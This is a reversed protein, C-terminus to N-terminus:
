IRSFDGKECNWTMQEIMFHFVAFFAVLFLPLRFSRVMTFLALNAYHFHIMMTRPHIITHSYAILLVKDQEVKIRSKSKSSYHQVIDTHTSHFDYPNNLIKILGSLIKFNLKLEVYM